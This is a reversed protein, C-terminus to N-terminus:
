STLREGGGSDEEGPRLLKLRVPPVRVQILQVEVKRRGNRKAKTSM